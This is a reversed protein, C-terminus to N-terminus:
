VKGTQITATVVESLNCCVSLLIFLAPAKINMNLKKFFVAAPM